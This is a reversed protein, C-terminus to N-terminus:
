SPASFSPHSLPPVVSAAARLEHTVQVRAVKGADHPTNPTLDSVRALCLVYVNIEPAPKGASPFSRTPHGPDWGQGYSPAHPESCCPHERCQSSVSLAHRGRVWSCPPLLLLPTRTDMHQLPDRELSPCVGDQRNRSKLAQTVQGWTAASSWSIPPPLCIVPHNVTTLLLLFSDTQIGGLAGSM